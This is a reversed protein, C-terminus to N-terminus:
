KPAGQEIIKMLDSIFQQISISVCTDIAKTRQPEPIPPVTSDVQTTCSKRFFEEMQVSIEFTHIVKVTQTTEPINANVNIDSPVEFRNACSITSVIIAIALLTKIM